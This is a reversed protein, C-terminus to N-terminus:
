NLDGQPPFFASRTREPRCPNFWCRAGEELLSRPSAALIKQVIYAEIVGPKILIGTVLRLTGLHVAFRVWDLIDGDPM